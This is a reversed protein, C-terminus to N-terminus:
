SPTYFWSTFCSSAGNHKGCAFAMLGRRLGGCLIAFTVWACLPRAKRRPTRDKHSRMPGTYWHWHTVAGPGVLVGWGGVALDLIWTQFMFSRLINSMNIKTVNKTALIGLFFGGDFSAIRLVSLSWSWFWTGWPWNNKDILSKNWAGYFYLCHFM